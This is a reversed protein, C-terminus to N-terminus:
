LFKLKYSVEFRIAPVKSRVSDSLLSVWLDTYILSVSIRGMMKVLKNIAGKRETSDDAMGAIVRLADIRGV